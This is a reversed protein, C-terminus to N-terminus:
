IIGEAAVSAPPALVNTIRGGHSLTMSAIEQKVGDEYIEFEDKSLDSIFNGKEDHPIVDTTVLDVKVSFTPKPPAQAPQIQNTQAQQTQAPTDAQVFLVATLVALWATSRLGGMKLKM